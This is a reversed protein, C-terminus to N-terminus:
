EFSYRLVWCFVLYLLNSMKKGGRSVSRPSSFEVLSIWILRMEMNFVEWWVSTSLSITQFSNWKAIAILLRSWYFHDFCCFLVFCFSISFLFTRKTIKYYIQSHLIVNMDTLTKSITLSDSISFHFHHQFCENLCRCRNWHVSHHLEGRQM